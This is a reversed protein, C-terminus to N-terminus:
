LRWNQPFKYIVYIGVIVILVFFVGNYFVSGGFNPSSLQLYTLISMVILTASTLGVYAKKNEYRKYMFLGSIWFIFGATFIVTNYDMLGLFIFLLGIIVWLLSRQM